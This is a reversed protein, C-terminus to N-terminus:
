HRAEGSVATDLMSLRLVRCAESLVKELPVNRHAGFDVLLVSLVSLLTGIDEAPTTDADILLDMIADAMDTMRRAGATDPKDM